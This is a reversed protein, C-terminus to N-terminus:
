FLEILTICDFVPLVDMKALVAHEFPEQFHQSEDGEDSQRIMNPPRSSHKLAGNSVQTKKPCFYSVNTTFILNLKRTSYVVM